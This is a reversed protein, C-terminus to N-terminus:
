RSSQCILAMCIGRDTNDKSTCYAVFGRASRLDPSVIQTRAPFSSCWCLDLLISLYKLPKMARGGLEGNYGSWYTCCHHLSPHRGHECRYRIWEMFYEGASIATLGSRPENDGSRDRYGYYRHM